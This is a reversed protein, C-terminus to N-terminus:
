VEIKTMFRMIVFGLVVSFIAYILLKQGTPHAFLPQLYDANILYIIGGFALPLIALIRASARGEATLTRVQRKLTFRERITDALSRLIRSLNGGTERQITFAAVLIKLDPVGPFRREFNHLAQEFALGMAIEEYINRIEVGIPAGLGRGVEKLAGDVSQGVKLARAIMELADPLQQVLAQERKQRRQLLYVFPLAMGLTLFIAMLPLSRLLLAAPIMCLLGIGLTMILFRELSVGVGAAALLAQLASLDVFRGLATSLRGTGDSKQLLSHDDRRRVSTPLLKKVLQDRRHRHKDRVLLWLAAVFLLVDLGIIIAILLQM